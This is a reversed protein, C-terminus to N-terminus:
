ETQENDNTKKRQEELTIISSQIGDFLSKVGLVKGREVSFEELDKFGTTIAKNSFVRILNEYYAKLYLYAESHKFAEFAVGKKLEEQLYAKQQAQQEESLNDM